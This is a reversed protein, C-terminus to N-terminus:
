VIGARRCCRSDAMCGVVPTFLILADITCCSAQRNHFSHCAGGQHLPADLTTGFSHSLDISGLGGDKLRRICVEGFGLGCSLRQQEGDDDDGNDGQCGAAEENLTAVIKAKSPLIGDFGVSQTLLCHEFGFLLGV